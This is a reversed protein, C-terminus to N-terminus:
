GGALREARAQAEAALSAEDRLRRLDPLQEPRLSERALGQKVRGELMGLSQGVEALAARLEGAQARVADRRAADPTGPSGPSGSAEAELAALTERAKRSREQAKRFPVYFGESSVRVELGLLDAADLLWLRVELLRRDASALVAASGKPDQQRATEMLNLLKEASTELTRHRARVQELDGATLAEGRPWTKETLAEIEWRAEAAKSLWRESEAAFDISVPEPGRLREYVTDAILAVLVLAALVTARTMWRGQKRTLVVPDKDPPPGHVRPPRKWHFSKRAAAAGPAQAPVGGPAAPLRPLTGAPRRGLGQRQMWWTLALVAVLLIVVGAVLTRSDFPPPEYREAKAIRLSRGILFPAEVFGKQGEYVCTRLFLGELTVLKRAELEPPPPELLDAVYGESMSPDALFVRYVLDVEGAKESLAKPEGHLFLASVSVPRGRLQPAARTFLAWGVRRASASLLAPDLRGAYAVLARYAADELGLPAGDKVGGLHADLEPDEPLRAPGEAPLFAEVGRAARAGARERRVGDLQPRIELFYVALAAGAFIAGGLLWRFQRTAWFPVRM